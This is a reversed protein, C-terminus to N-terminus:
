NRLLCSPSNTISLTRRRDGEMSNGLIVSLKGQTSRKERRVPVDGEVVQIFLLMTLARRRLATTNKNLTLIFPLILFTNRTADEVASSGGKTIMRAAVGTSRSKTTGALWTTENMVRLTRKLTMNKM